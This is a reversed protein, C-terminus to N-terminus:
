QYEHDLRTAGGIKRAKGTKSAPEGGGPDDDYARIRLLVRLARGNAVTGVRQEGPRKRQVLQDEPERRECMTRSRRLVHAPAHSVRLSAKLTCVAMLWRRGGKSAISLGNGASCLM